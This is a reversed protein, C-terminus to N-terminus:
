KFPLRGSLEPSKTLIGVGFGNESILVADSWKSNFGLKLRLAVCMKFPTDRM